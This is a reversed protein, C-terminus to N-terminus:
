SIIIKKVADSYSVGRHVKFYKKFELSWMDMEEEIENVQNMILCVHECTTKAMEPLLFHFGWEVDKKDDEFGNRADIVFNSKDHKRLQELAFTTPNRYDELHAEKKWTILVVNDAKIYKVSAYDTDFEM